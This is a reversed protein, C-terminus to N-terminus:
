SHQRFHSTELIHTPIVVTKPCLTPFAINKFYSDTNRRNPAFTTLAVNLSAKLVVTPISVIQPCSETSRLTSPLWRHQSTNVLHRYQSSHFVVTPIQVLQLTVTPTAVHEGFTMVVSYLILM